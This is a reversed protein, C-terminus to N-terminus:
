IDQWKEPKTNSGTRLCYNRYVPNNRFQYQFLDCAARNFHSSKKFVKGSSRIEKLIRNLIDPTM